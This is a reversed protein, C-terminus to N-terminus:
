RNFFNVGAPNASDKAAGINATATDTVTGIATIGTATANVVGDIYIYAANNTTDWVATILHWSNDSVVKTTDFTGGSIEDAGAAATDRINFRIKGSTLLQITSLAFDDSQKTDWLSQGAAPAAPTKMWLSISRDNNGISIASASFNIFDNVGDFQYAGGVKGGSMNLLVGNATNVDNGLAYDLTDNNLPLYVLATGDNIFTTANLINEKYWNYAFTINDSDDDTATVLTTLNQNTDNTSPNTSNLIVASISPTTFLSFRPETSQPSIPSSNIQPSDEQNNEPPNTPNEEKPSPITQPIPIEPTTNATENNTETESISNNEIVFSINSQILSLNDQLTQNSLNEETASINAILFIALTILVSSTYISRSTKKFKNYSLTKKYSKSATAFLTKTKIM